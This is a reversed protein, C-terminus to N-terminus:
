VQYWHTRPTKHKNPNEPRRTQHRNTNPIPTHYTIPTHTVQHRTHAPWKKQTSHTPKQLATCWRVPIKVQHKQATARFANIESGFWADACHIHLKGTSKRRKYGPMTQLLPYWLVAVHVIRRNQGKKELLLSLFPTYVQVHHM